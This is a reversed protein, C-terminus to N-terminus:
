RNPEEGTGATLASIVGVGFLLSGVVTASVPWGLWVTLGAALLALGLTVVVCGPEISRRM